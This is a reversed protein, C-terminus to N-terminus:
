RLVALYGGIAVVVWAAIGVASATVARMRGLLLRVLVAFAVFGVAGFMMGLGAQSADHGGKDILTIVLSALAVSPAAAFLGAFRKPRLTHGLLAFAVVFTGGLAAKIVVVAVDPM